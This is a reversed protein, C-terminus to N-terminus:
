QGQHFRHLDIWRRRWLDDAVRELVRQQLQHRLPDIFDDVDRRQRDFKTRIAACLIGRGSSTEVFARKATADAANAPDAVQVGPPTQSHNCDFVTIAPPAAAAAIGVPAAVLSAVRTLKGAQTRLKRQEVNIKMTDAFHKRQEASFSVNDAFRKLVKQPVIHCTCRM